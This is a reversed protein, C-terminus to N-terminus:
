DLEFYRKLNNRIEIDFVCNDVNVRKSNKKRTTPDCLIAFIMVLQKYEKLQQDGFDWQMDFRMLAEEKYAGKAHLTFYACLIDLVEKVESYQKNLNKVLMTYLDYNSNAGRKPDVEHDLRMAKEYSDLRAIVSKFSQKGALRILNIKEELGGAGGLAESVSVDKVVNSDVEDDVVEPGPLDPDLIDAYSRDNEIPKTNNEVYVPKDVSETESVNTENETSEVTDVSPKPNEIVVENENNSGNGNEVVSGSNEINETESVVNDDAVYGSTAETAIRTYEELLGNSLDVIGESNAVLEQADADTEILESSLVEVNSRLKALEEEVKTKVEALQALTAVKENSGLASRNILELANAEHTALKGELLTVMEQVQASANFTLAM